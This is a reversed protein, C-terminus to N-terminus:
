AICNMHLPEHPFHDAHAGSSACAIHFSVTGQQAHPDSSGQVPAQEHLYNPVAPTFRRNPEDAPRRGSVTCHTVCILLSDTECEAIILRAHLSVSSVYRTSRALLHLSSSRQQQRQSGHLDAGTRLLSILARVYWRRLVTGLSTAVCALLLCATLRLARVDM